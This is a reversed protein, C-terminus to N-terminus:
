KKSAQFGPRIVQIIFVSTTNATPTVGLVVFNGPPATIETQIKCVDVPGKANSGRSASITIALRKMDEDLFQGNVAFPYNWNGLDATGQTQFQSGPAANVISQAVLRLKELGLKRLSPLIENLDDPPPLAAFNEPTPGSALWVVRVQASQVPSRNPLPQDLKQILELAKLYTVNDSSLVVQKRKPDFSFDGKAGGKFLLKITDKLHQDPEIHVLPIFWTSERTTSEVERKRQSAVKALDELMAIVPKIKELEAPPAYVLIANTGPDATANIGLLEKLSRSVQEAKADHLGIVKLEMPATGPPQLPQAIVPGQFFGFGFVVASLVAIGGLRIAPHRLNM